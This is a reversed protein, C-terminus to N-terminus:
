NEMASQFSLVYFQIIKDTQQPRPDLKVPKIKNKGSYNTITDRTYVPTDRKLGSNRM